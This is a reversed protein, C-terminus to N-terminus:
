PKQARELKTNETRSLTKVTTLHSQIKDPTANESPRKSHQYNKYMNTEYWFARAYKKVNYKECNM